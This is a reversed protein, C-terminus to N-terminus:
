PKLLLGQGTPLTAIKVGRKAAFANMARTQEEYTAFGYDDLIVPAGPVLRDWFFEMAAIEPVVINMDVSLYCVRSIYVEALTEPIRGRVLRAKPFPAFNRLATEFCEEYFRENEAVRMARESVLMQEEPIGRFTDFLYFSKGTANLDIYDCVAVSFVGTNVGCEVFDGPLHTAHFGAWCLVHIRWEIHIDDRSGRARNIKHGTDM